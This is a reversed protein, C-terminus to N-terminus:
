RDYKFYMITGYLIHMVGFGFAWFLLGFGPLLACALGIAIEIIGLYKIDKLTYKSGNVLAMGYFILFSPAVISYFGRNVLILIFVGGAVLPILLHELLNRFGEDAFSLSKKGSKRATLILGTTVALVLVVLAVMALKIIVDTENVYYERATLALKEIYVIRYAIYAGALAYIGALVGSLGSLSIFSSSREMISRIQAIDELYNKTKKTM